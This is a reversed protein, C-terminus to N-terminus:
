EQKSEGGFEVLLFAPGDPLIALSASEDGKKKVYEFLLKDIGECATPEFKIVELGCEAAVDISKFGLMVVSREKPVPVLHLSAELITVLTSESGVLARAVNFGKEPLLDDLNYGSVRRELRPMKNRIVDGYKEVIRKLAAYIEGRRGGARIIAELEQPPTPGVRLRTGDYLLVDLQHTNDSMRVGFGYKKSILSHSGCSNNGLMGGITCRSHTAPDPGFYLGAAEKAATRFTDLVCGPQAHGLREQADIKLPHHMYKSFDMVVAVNCCQGALSTGCGRNLIPADHERAARVTMEVDQVSRPIVVGIPAQRYNSGDTAYLARAGDDFRVEGEITQRLCNALSEASERSIATRSDDSRERNFRGQENRRRLMQLSTTM